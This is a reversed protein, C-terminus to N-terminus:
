CQQTPDEKEMLYELLKECGALIRDYTEEFEGTIFPDPIDEEDIDDVVDMLRLIEGTEKMGAMRHLEGLIEADMAILYDFELLDKEGVQRVKNKQMQIGKGFLLETADEQPNEGVHWDGIAASEIHFQNENLSTEQLKRKLVSTAMPSRCIGGAGVFLIKM